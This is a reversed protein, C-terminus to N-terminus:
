GRESQQGRGGDLMMLPQVAGAIRLRQRTVRDRRDSPQEPSRVHVARQDLISCRPGTCGPISGHRDPRLNAGTAQVTRRHVGYQVRGSVPDPTPALPGGPQGGTLDLYQAQQSAPERATLDSIPQDDRRLRDVVDVPDVGLGAHGVLRQGAHVRELVTEHDLRDAHRSFQPHDGMGAHLRVGVTSVMLWLPRIPPVATTIPALIAPSQAAWTSDSCKSVTRTM